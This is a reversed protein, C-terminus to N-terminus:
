DTGISRRTMAAALMTADDGLGPAQLGQEACLQQVRAILGADGMSQAAEKVLAQAQGLPMQDALAFALGEAHIAGGGIAMADAMQDPNARLTRALELANCLGAGAATLMAPLVMWEGSWATGDREEHHMLAQQALGAQAGNFRALVVLSEALVPNSKQPMTSSGGGTGAMAEAAESRGMLILDGGIRGLLGAVMALWNACEVIGDREAHWPKAPNTLGLDDAMAAAVAPGKNGLVSLAGAAGGLQLMLLRPKMQELRVLCRVLPARWGAIRLGFTVPTAVQSRTRGAMPQEAQTLAQTGLIDVLDSLWGEMLDLCARLRLVWGVDIVDQSTAGWHVFDGNPPGVHARLLKVLGPVPVGAARTPDILDAPSVPVTELAAQIADGAEAPIVGHAAEARALAVEFRVMADIEAAGTLHAAIAECGMLGSLIPNDPFGTM